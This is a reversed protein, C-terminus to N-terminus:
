RGGSDRIPRKGGVGIDVQVSGSVKVDWDGVRVWGTGDPSSPDQIPESPPAVVVVKDGAEVNVGPLAGSKATQEAATMAPVAFALPLALLLAALPNRVIM